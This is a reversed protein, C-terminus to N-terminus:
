RRVGRMATEARSFRNARILRGAAPAQFPITLHVKYLRIISLNVVIVRFDTRVQGHNNGNKMSHDASRFATSEADHLRGSGAAHGNAHEAYKRFWAQLSEFRSAM